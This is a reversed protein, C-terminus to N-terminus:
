EKYMDLLPYLWSSHTTFIVFDPKYELIFPEIIKMDLGFDNTRLKRVESVSYPLFATFNEAFSNGILMAKLKNKGHINIFEKLDIDGKEKKEFIIKKVVSHDKHYFYKYKTKLKKSLNINMTDASCGQGIYEDHGFHVNVDEIIDFDDKALTHFQPFDKAIEKQM